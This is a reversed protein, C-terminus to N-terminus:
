PEQFTNIVSCTQTQGANINGTGSATHPIPQCDGSFAIVFTAPQNEESVVYTGPSLTFTTGMSSGLFSEIKGDPKTIKLEFDSPPFCGDTGETCGRV